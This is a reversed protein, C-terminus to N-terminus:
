EAPNSRLWALAHERDSFFKVHAGRTRAITKFLESREGIEYDELCIACWLESAVTAARMASEVIERSERPRDPFHGEIMVRNCDYQKCADEVAAWLPSTQPAAATEFDPGLTVDIFDGRFVIDFDRGANKENNGTPERM